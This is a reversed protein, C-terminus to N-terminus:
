YVVVAECGMEIYRKEVLKKDYGRMEGGSLPDLFYYKDEDYGCFLMCHENAKWTYQTGDTLTYKMGNYTKVMDMTVWCIVPIDSDIYDRVLEEIDTGVVSKYILRGSGAYNDQKMASIADVIVESFCGLGSSYPDGAFAKHPNPGYTKGNKIFFNEQRLYDSIFRDISIDIGAYNLAAVTSVAECGTPIGDQSLGTVDIIHSTISHSIANDSTVFKDTRALKDSNKVIYDVRDYEHSEEAMNNYIKNQVNGETKNYVNGTKLLFIKLVLMFVILILSAVIMNRKRRRKRLKYYKARATNNALINKAMM